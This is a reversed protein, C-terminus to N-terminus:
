KEVPGYAKIQSKAFIEDFYSNETAEDSKYTKMFEEYSPIELKIEQVEEMKPTLIEKVM